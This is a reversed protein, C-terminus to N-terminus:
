PNWRAPKFGLLLPVPSLGKAALNRLVDGAVTQVPWSTVLSKTAAMHYRALSQYMTFQILLLVSTDSAM